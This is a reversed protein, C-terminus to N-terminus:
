GGGGMLLSVVLVSALIISIVAYRRDGELLFTPIAAAIAMVPTALLILVGVAAIALPDPPWRRLGAVVEGVSTFVHAAGSARATTTLRVPNLAEDRAGVRVAYGVLGLLMLAIGLLGGWLLIRSVMREVRM